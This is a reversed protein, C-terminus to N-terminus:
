KKVTITILKGCFPCYIGGILHIHGRNWTRKCDTSYEDSYDKYYWVCKDKYVKRTM